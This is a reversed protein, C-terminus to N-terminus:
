GEGGLEEEDVPEPEEPPGTVPEPEERPQDASGGPPVWIGGSM